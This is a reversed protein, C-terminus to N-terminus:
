VVRSPMPEPAGSLLTCLEAASRAAQFAPVMGPEHMRKAVCSLTKLHHEPSRSQSGLLILIIGPPVPLNPMPWGEPARCIMMLPKELNGCRAHLLVTGATLEVPYSKASDMLCALAARATEPSGPFATATMRHLAQELTYDPGLEASLLLPFEEDPEAPERVTEEDRAALSPYAVLLNMQPFREAILEPLHDLAPTWLLGSRRDSPLLIMDDPQIEAFLVQQVKDWSLVEVATTRCSPKTRDLLSLLGGTEKAVTYTRLEAGARQALMKADNMLASLDRRHSAMPPFPMLLRRTTNLPSVLRCFLLRAPCSEVLHHMVTGFIRVSAARGGFWGMVVSSSQVERAAQIIGDPINVSVRLGPNVPMDASAAHALCRGLLKEGQAVDVDNHGRDLAIALPYIGGPRATNRLLFALDLLRTASDPNAVPVLLRQEASSAATQVPAEEAMRRGYRDVLWSGLPCTVLIMAIAGNLVTEDFVKLNYGVVVAALTAAAQVVSLGFMVRGAAQSYGFLRRAAQAALYKTLIVMVIMTAGILWNRPGTLMARPDVLMGVSILFFPIFLTNGAFTVRTMLPSNEPILRNFAAGAMFAGIIPEMRAFHSLYACGCVTVIVFLFQANSKESVRQFFWRSVLPIGKWILVTLALMGFVIVAWFGPTLAVGRASDAIVALVLLALTDTIMTAGVTIAVPESRSIGLRGALPYALLTHSAFMSALLLSATWSMGLVYHGALTGLSQPIIFTLLGFVISRKYSRSFRYLDIELGALFMIYLLGIAGLMTVASNRELVHLGSPGLLAGFGLLLVLDPVRLKESIVPSVLMILALITFVLIPDTVPFM